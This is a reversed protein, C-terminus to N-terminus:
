RQPTIKFVVGCGGTCGAGTGGRTTSGYLNGSADLVVNNPFAGDGGQFDHLSLYAWSDGSPSLEWVNGLGFLGGCNTVGYLNRDSDMTLGYPPGCGPQAAALEYLSHFQWGDGLPTLEFIVGGGGTGGNGSAGYLNGDSDFIVGMEPFEGDSGNQFAYLTHESWGSQMPMLEYVAGNAPQGLTTGYLNGAPDFILDGEPHAQGGSASFDWITNETWGGGSHTLEFATGFNHAGVDYTTGYINGSHDFLLDTIPAAGDHGGNAFGQFAYLQTERWPCSISPCITLPPQLNFITGCGLGWVNPCQGGGGAATTGYLSGNSGITVGTIPAAGDTGGAFSYLVGYIWQSNRQALRFVTGCGAAPSCSGGGGAITTGYLTGQDVTLPASPNAGGEGGTFNHIITFTQAHVTPGSICISVLMAVAVVLARASVLQNGIAKLM